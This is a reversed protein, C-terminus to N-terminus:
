PWINKLVSTPKNQPKEKKVTLIAFIHKNISDECFFFVDTKKNILAIGAFQSGESFIQFFFFPTWKARQGNKWSVNNSFFLDKIIFVGFM